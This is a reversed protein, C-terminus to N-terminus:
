YDGKKHRSLLQEPHFSPRDPFPDHAQLCYLCYVTCMNFIRWILHEQEGGYQEELDVALAHFSKSVESVRREEVM